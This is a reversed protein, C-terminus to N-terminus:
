RLKRTAVVDPVEWSIDVAPNITLTVIQPM